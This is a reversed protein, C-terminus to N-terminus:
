GDDSVNSIELIKYNMDEVNEVLMDNVESSTIQYGRFIEWSVTGLEKGNEIEVNGVYTNYNLSFNNEVIRKFEVELCENEIKHKAKEVDIVNIKGNMISCDKLNVFKIKKNKRANSLVILSIESNTYPVIKLPLDIIAEIFGKEILEKRVERDLTNFLSGKITTIVARGNEKLSALIKIATIWTISIRGSLEINLKKCEEDLVKRVEKDFRSIYPIDAVAYNYKKYIEEILIDKKYFKVNDNKLAYMKLKALELASDNIEFGDIKIDKHNKIFVKDIIGEGSYLDLIETGDDIDLLYDMLEAEAKPTKLDFPNKNDSEKNIENIFDEEDYKLLENIMSIIREEGLFSFSYNFGELEKLSKIEDKSNRKLKLAIGMIEIQTYENMIGKGLLIDLM